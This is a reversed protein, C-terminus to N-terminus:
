EELWALAEEKTKFFRLNKNKAISMAFSALVKAVPHLGYFGLKGVKEDDNLENFVKRAESSQKGGKNLDVIGNAKGEVMSALKLINEKFAIAMREDVDGVLTAYIIDDNGLCVSSNGIRIERDKQEM